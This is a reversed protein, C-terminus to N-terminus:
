DRSRTALSCRGGARRFQVIKRCVELISVRVAIRVRSGSRRPAPQLRLGSLKGRAFRSQIVTYLSGTDARMNKLNVADSAVVAVSTKM